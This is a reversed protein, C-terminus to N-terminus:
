ALDQPNELDYPKKSAERAFQVKMKLVTERL